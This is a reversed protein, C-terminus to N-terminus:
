FMIAVLAKKNKEPHGGEGEEANSLRKNIM